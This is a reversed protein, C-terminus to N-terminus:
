ILWKALSGQPWNVAFGLSGKFTLLLLFPVLNPAPLEAIMGVCYERDVRFLTQAANARLACRRPVGRHQHHMGQAAGEPAPDLWCSWMVHSPTRSGTPTGTPSFSLSNVPYGEHPEFERFSRMDSKMGGFDFMRVTYDESGTLLRAGSADVALASVLKRHGPFIHNLTEPKRHGLFIAATDLVLKLYVISRKYEFSLVLASHSFLLRRIRPKFRTGPLLQCRQQTGHVPFSTDIFGIPYVHDEKV